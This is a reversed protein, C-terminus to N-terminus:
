LNLKDLEKKTKEELEKLADSLKKHWYHLKEETMDSIIEFHLVVYMDLLTDSILREVPSLDTIRKDIIKQNRLINEYGPFSFKFARIEALYSNFSTIWQNLWAIARNIDDSFV